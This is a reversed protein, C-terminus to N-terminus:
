AGALRGRVLLVSVVAAWVWFATFPVFALDNTWISRALV